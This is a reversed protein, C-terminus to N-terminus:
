LYHYSGPWSTCCLRVSFYLSLTCLSADIALPYFARCVRAVAVLDRRSLYSLVELWLEAPLVFPFRPTYVLLRRGDEAGLVTHEARTSVEAVVQPEAVPVADTQAGAMATATTASSVARPAAPAPAPPSKSTTVQTQAMSSAALPTRAVTSGSTANTSSSTTPLPPTLKPVRPEDRLKSVLSEESQADSFTAAVSANTKPPLPAVAAAPKKKERRGKNHSSHPRADVALLRSGTAEEPLEYGYPVHLGSGSADNGNGAARGAGAKGGAECTDTGTDARASSGSLGDLHLARHLAATARRATETPPVSELEEANLEDSLDLIPLPLQLLLEPELALAPPRRSPSLHVSGSDSAESAVFSTIADDIQQASPQTVTAGCQEDDEDERYKSSSISIGKAISSCVRTSSTNPSFSKAQQDVSKAPSRTGLHVPSQADRSSPSPGVAREETEPLKRESRRTSLDLPPVIVRTSMSPAESLLPHVSTQTGTAKEDERKEVATGKGSSEARGSNTRGSGIAANAHFPVRSSNRRDSSLPRYRASAAASALPAPSAIRNSHPDATFSHWVTSLRTEGDLMAGCSTCWEETRPNPSFCENCISFTPRIPVLEEEGTEVALSTITPSHFKRPEKPPSTLSSGNKSSNTPNQAQPNPNQPPKSLRSKESNNENNSRNFYEYRQISRTSTVSKPSPLVTVFTSKKSVPSLKTETKDTRTSDSNVDRPEEIYSYPHTSPSPEERTSEPIM